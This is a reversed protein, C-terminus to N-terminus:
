GWYWDSYSTRSALTPVGGDDKPFWALERGEGSPSQAGRCRVGDLGLRNAEAGIPQCDNHSVTAGSDDIPYSAPLGVAKVGAPSHVDIARQASPLRAGVLVPGTDVRFDEPEYPWPSVFTRLNLRATVVDENLYLVRFSDPPNWRGGATAAFTSDLPDVWSPDAVRLWEHDEVIDEIVLEAGIDGMHRHFTSCPEVGLLFAAM